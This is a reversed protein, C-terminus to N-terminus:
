IKPHRLLHAAGLSVRSVGVFKDKSMTYFLTTSGVVLALLAVFRGSSPWTSFLSAQATTMMPMASDLTLFSQLSGFMPIFVDGPLWMKLFSRFTWPVLGNGTSLLLRAMAMSLVQLFPPVCNVM